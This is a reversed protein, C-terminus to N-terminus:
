EKLKLGSRTQRGPLNMANKIWKAFNKTSKPASTDNTEKKGQNSKTREPEAPAPRQAPVTRDTAKEMQPFTPSMKRDSEPDILPEGINKPLTKDNDSETESASSDPEDLFDEEESESTESDENMVKDKIPKYPRPDYVRPIEVEDEGAPLDRERLMGGIKEQDPKIYNFLSSRQSFPKLFYISTTLTWPPETIRFIDRIEVLSHYVKEIRYLTNVYKQGIGSLKGLNLRRFYVYKGATFPSGRNQSDRPRHKRRMKHYKLIAQKNMEHQRKTVNYYEEPLVHGSVKNKMLPFIVIDRGYHAMDPTMGEPLGNNTNTNLLYTCLPLLSVWDKTDHQLCLSKLMYKLSANYTEILSQSRSNYFIGTKIAAGWQACFAKVVKNNLLSVQNDGCVYSYSGHNSFVGLLAKVVVSSTMRTTATAFSKRSYRDVMNLVYKYKLYPDLYIFDVDLCENPRTPQYLHNAPDRPRTQLRLISCIACGKVFELVM